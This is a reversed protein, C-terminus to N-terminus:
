PFSAMLCARLQEASYKDGSPDAVITPSRLLIKRVSSMASTWNYYGFKVYDNYGPTTFGLNGRHNVIREGDMWVQLFGEGATNLRFKFVFDMWRDFPLDREAYNAVTSNSQAPLPSTSWRAQVKFKRGAGTTYLSFAPSLNLSDDGSHVQTGFLAADKSGLVGWDYAYVGLAVWYVKNTEINRGFSLESRKGKATVPDDPHVQFSLAKLIPNSPDPVKGFRLTEGNPLISGHIGSEPISGARTYTGVVQATYGSQRSFPLQASAAGLLDSAAISLPGCGARACIPVTLLLALLIKHCCKLWHDLAQRRAQPAPQLAPRDPSQHSLRLSGGQNQERRQRVRRAPLRDDLSRQRLARVRRAQPQAKRSADVSGPNVFYVSDNRLSQNEAPIERVEDGRVRYVKQEHSHGFFCLRAGPFDARLFAANEGILAPTAMYQQVDRVGGHVLVVGDELVCHPPLAALYSVSAQALARRTRRLSYEAKNSCRRFDLRGLGILDHHGAIAVACRKRVMAVCEDPDANYGVVDGLCVIREVQRQELAGLAPALAERNGQIDAIVGYLAM